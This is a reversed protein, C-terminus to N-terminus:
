RYIEAGFPKMFDVGQPRVWKRHSSLYIEQLNRQLIQLKYIEAGFPKMFDVGQPRVWKRHSSLSLGDNRRHHAEAVAAPLHRPRRLHETSFAIM